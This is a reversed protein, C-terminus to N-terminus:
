QDQAAKHQQLIAKQKDSMAPNFGAGAAGTRGARRSHCGAALSLGVAAMLLAFRARCSLRNM